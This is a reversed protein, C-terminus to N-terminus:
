INADQIVIFTPDTEFPGLPPLGHLPGNPNTSGERTQNQEAEATERELIIHDQVDCAPATGRDTRIARDDPFGSRLRRRHGGGIARGIHDDDQRIIQAEVVDAQVAAEAVARDPGRVDIGQGPATRDQGLAIGAVGGAGGGARGQHGAAIRGPEAELEGRNRNLHGPQQRGQRVSILLEFEDEAAVPHVLDRGILLHTDGGALDRKGLQHLGSAVVGQVQAFPVEALRRAHSGLILAKVLAQAKHDPCLQEQRGAVRVHDVRALREIRQVAEQPGVQGVTNLVVASLPEMGVAIHGVIQRILRQGADPGVAVPREEHIQGVIGRM